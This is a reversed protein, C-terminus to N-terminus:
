IRSKYKFLGEKQEPLHSSIWAVVLNCFLINNFGEQFVKKLCGKLKRSDKFSDQFGCQFEKLYEHLERSDDKFTGRLM